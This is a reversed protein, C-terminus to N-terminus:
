YIKIPNPEFITWQIWKRKLPSKNSRERSDTIQFEGDTCRPGARVNCLRKTCHNLLLIFLLLTVAFATPQGVTKVSGLALLVSSLLKNDHLYAM